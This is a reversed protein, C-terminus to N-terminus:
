THDAFEALNRLNNVMEEPGVTELLRTVRRQMEGLPIQQSVILGAHNEGAHWRREFIPVFHQPAEWMFVLISTPM